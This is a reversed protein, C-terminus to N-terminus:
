VPLDPVTVFLLVEDDAALDFSVFAPLVVPFVLIVLGFCLCEVVCLDFSFVVFYTKDHTLNCHVGCIKAPNKIPNLNPV